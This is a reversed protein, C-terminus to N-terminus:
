CLDLKRAERLFEREARRFPWCALTVDLPRVRPAFEYIGPQLLQEIETRLMRNDLRRVAPTMPHPLGFREAIVAEVKDELQRYWRMGGAYKIPRVVDGVYAEAADHLLAEVAHREEASRAIWVCHEAVTLPRVTQGSWRILCGLNHAIDELRIDEPRLRQLDLVRGGVTSRVPAAATM